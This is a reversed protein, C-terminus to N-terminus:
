VHVVLQQLSPVNGVNARQGGCDRACHVAGLLYGPFIKQNTSHLLVDAGRRPLSATHYINISQISTLFLSHINKQKCKGEVNKNLM